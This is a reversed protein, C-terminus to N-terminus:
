SPLHPPTIMECTSLRTQRLPQTTAALLEGPTKHTNPPLHALKPTQHLSLDIYALEQLGGTPLGAVLHSGTNRWRCIFEGTLQGIGHHRGEVERAVGIVTSTVSRSIEGGGSELYRNWHSPPHLHFLTTQKERFCVCLFLIGGGYRGWM